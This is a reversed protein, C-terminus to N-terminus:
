KDTTKSSTDSSKDKDGVREDVTSSVLKSLTDSYTGSSTYTVAKTRAAANSISDAKQSIKSAFSNYGTFVTKLSSIDAKKLTEEDLELKNGKGITIGIKALMSSNKDTMSTMWAANRLVNKTNSDGAAEVVSNYDEVFSKVAKTISDWDYDEVEVKEGTEEDTKTIKKKEWLSSDNLADASKKLSDASSRM